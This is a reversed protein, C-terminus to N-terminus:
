DPPRRRPPPSGPGACAASGARTGRRPWPPASTTPSRRTRPPPARAPPRTRRGAARGLPPRREVQPVPGLREPGDVDRLREVHHLRGPPPQDEVLQEPQLQREDQPPAGELHVGARQVVVHRGPLDRARDRVGEHRAEQGPQGVLERLRLAPGQRHDHGVHGPGERHVAQELAVDAGALGDDRQGRQQGRHLAPVLAREHHRGLHQGLLVERRHARQEAVQFAGAAHAPPSTRTSSSVLRTFPFARAATSSPSADPSTPMTTPVWASNVSSTANAESPHTTISSCCRKPTSCRAVSRALPASPSGSRSTMVAVGIGRVAAM